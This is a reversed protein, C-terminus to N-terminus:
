FLVVTFDNCCFYHQFLRSCSAIIIAIIKIVISAIVIAITIIIIIIIIIIVIIIIIIIIFCAFGLSVVVFVRLIHKVIYVGIERFIYLITSSNLFKGFHFLWDVTSLGYPTVTKLVKRWYEEGPASHTPNEDFIM